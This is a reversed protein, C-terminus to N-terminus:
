YPRIHFIAAGNSFSTVPCTTVDGVYTTPYTAVDNDSMTSEVVGETSLLLRQCWCITIETEGMRLCLDGNQAPM